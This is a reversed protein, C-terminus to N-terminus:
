VIIKVSSGGSKEKKVIIQKDIRTKLESVHSIIGVLRDGDALGILAKMAQSLSEEDLSGFGEDVFLTDLQIGGAASQIEDSLGLALSLSAKFSEGGSLTRVSRESGNYHDVVDIELGSQSKVNDANRRRKLEYQGGSMVLLRINARNLIRDFFTMQIYTELMIKEKGSINGNATNSLAKMWRWKEEVASLEEGKSIIGALAARNQAIRAHIEKQEALLRSKEAQLAAKKQFLGEEDAEELSDLQSALEAIAANLEAIAKDCENYEATAKEIAAELVRAESELRTKERMAAERSEFPLKERKERCAKETEEATTRAVLAQEALVSLEKASEDLKKRSAPILEEALIRRRSARQEEETVKKKLETIAGRVRSLEGLAKESAGDGEEICLESLQRTVSEKLSEVTGRLEGARASTAQVEDSAEELRRKARDLEEKSPASVSKEAKKPHTLSGCVPCPMNDELGEALIGAQEDLYARNKLDYEDGAAKAAAKADLYLVQANKLKRSYTSLKDLEECLKQLQTKKSELAAIEGFLREKEAGASELARLEEEYESLRASLSDRGKEKLARGKECRAMEAEARAKKSLKEEYEDYEPLVSAIVAARRHKEEIEPVKERAGLLTEGCTKASATKEELLAKKRSLELTVKKRQAARSLEGALAELEKEVGSLEKEAVRAGDEDYGIIREILEKVYEIDGAAEIERGLELSYDASENCVVSQKHQNISRSVNEYQKALAGSESKLKEQFIQYYGTKFIDRFIEQRSKTDAILLKQFDGQAIMAIQCFQNKDVGIIQRVAENVDKLKTVIRGDPYTLLADAKETTFGTGRAKEREYEPNRKINYIKGKNSFTLEVETPTSPSAYKSRMMSQQRVGGSAEGYLAFTIADFITTKGAGTDGTVLYLGSRGLSELDLEVEGAYPGFASMKLKLPRM